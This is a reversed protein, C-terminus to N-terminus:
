GTSFEAKRALAALGVSMWFPMLVQDDLFYCQFAGGALLLLPMFPVFPRASSVLRELGRADETFRDATDRGASLSLVAAWFALFALGAPLGATTLNHLFDNHSHGRETQMYLYWLYPRDAAKEHMRDAVVESFNGPGVGTIPHDLFVESATSWLMVRQYDSHKKELGVSQMLFERVEANVVTTVAAILLLLVPVPALRWASRKWRRYSLFIIGALLASLVGFIASRANNLLLVFAAIALVGAPIWDEAKWHRFYPRFVWSNLVYLTLPIFFFGLQAGFALHTGLMGVPMHLTLGPLLTFMPHQLRAEASFTLGHELHYLARSLRFPTFVSILGTGLLLLFTVAVSRLLLSRHRASVTGHHYVWLATGLLWVDKLDSSLATRLPAVSAKFVSHVLASLLWTGYLLLAALIVRRFDPTWSERRGGQGVYLLLSLLALALFSQSLSISLPSCCLAIMGTWLSFRNMGEKTNM